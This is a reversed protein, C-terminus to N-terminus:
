SLCEITDFFAMPSRYLNKCPSITPFYWGSPKGQMPLYWHLSRLLNKGSGPAEGVGDTYVTSQTSPFWKGFPMALMITDQLDIPKYMDLNLSKSTSTDTPTDNCLAAWITKVNRVAKSHEDRWCWQILLYEAGGGVNPNSCLIIDKSYTPLTLIGPNQSLAM